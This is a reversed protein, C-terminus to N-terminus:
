AEGPYWPEDFKETAVIRERPVIETIDGGMGMTQGDEHSWAYRYTGGARPEFTCETMTWGEPGTLWQRILEPKVLADYVAACPFAFERTFMIDRENPTAVKLTSRSM